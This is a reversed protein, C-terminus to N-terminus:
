SSKILDEYTRILDAMYEEMNFSFDTSEMLSRIISPKRIISEMHGALERVNGPEFLFGNIGDQIAEGIGGIRSGIIPTKSLKLENIVIPVCDECISPVIAVDIANLVRQINTPNYPGKFFINSSQARKKLEEIYTEDGGGFIFVEFSDQLTKLLKVADLILHVGKTKLISGVYGFVIKRGQPQFPLKPIIQGYNKNVGTMVFSASNKVGYQAYIEQTRKSPFIIAPAHNLEEIFFERRKKFLHSSLTLPIASSNQRRALIRYVLKAFRDLGKGISTNRVYGVYMWVLRSNQTLIRCSVCKNGEEFDNCVKRILRKPSLPVM